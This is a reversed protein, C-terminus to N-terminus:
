HIKGRVISAFIGAFCLIASISFAVKMTKLFLAYYTPTIQVKGIYLSFLLLVLGLSFAQGTLRMTGLTGSAVGYSKRDVASM